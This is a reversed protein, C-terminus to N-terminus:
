PTRLPFLHFPPCTIARIFHLRSLCLSPSVSSLSYIIVFCLSLSLFISFCILFLLLFYKAKIRKQCSNRKSETRDISRWISIHDIDTHCTRTESITITITIQKITITCYVIWITYARQNCVKRFIMSMPSEDSQNRRSQLAIISTMCIHRHVFMDTQYTFRHRMWNFM